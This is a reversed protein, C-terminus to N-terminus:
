GGIAKRQPTLQSMFNAYINRRQALLLTPRHLAREVRLHQGSFEIILPYLPSKNVHSSSCVFVLSTHFTRAQKQLKILQSDKLSRQLHCGILEFLSLSMLEQLLWALQAHDAPASIVLLHSLDVGRQQLGWPCLQLEPGNIWAVWKNQQLVGQATQLWLSTAGTGCPGYFLSLAQSPLGKWLLHQDLEKYGTALGKPPNLQHASILSGALDKKLNLLDALIPM